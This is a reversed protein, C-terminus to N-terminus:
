SKFNFETEKLACFGVAYEVVATETRVIRTVRMIPSDPVVDLRAAIESVAAVAAVSESCAGAAVGLREYELEWDEFSIEDLATLGPCHAAPWHIRGLIRSGDDLSLLREALVVREGTKIELQGAVIESAPEVKASFEIFEPERGVRSAILNLSSAKTRLIITGRGRQRSILGRRALTTLARRMTGVSVHYLAALDQEGPLPQGVTYAGGVIEKELAMAVQHHLPGVFRPAARGLLM